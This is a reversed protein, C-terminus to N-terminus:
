FKNTSYYSIYQKMSIYRSKFMIGYHRSMASHDPPRDPHRQQRGVISNV